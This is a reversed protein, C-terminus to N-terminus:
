QTTRRYSRGATQEGIQRRRKRFRFRPPQVKALQVGKYLSTRWNRKTRGGIPTYRTMAIKGFHELQKWSAPQARAIFIPTMDWDHQEYDEGVISYMIRMCVDSEPNRATCFSEAVFDMVDQKFGLALMGRQRLTTIIDMSKLFFTAIDKMNDVYVAPALAVFAILKDNYEPKQSMMTFFTTTGMSYGIYLIKSLGTVKLVKDIMAPADYKGHEHFSYDWFAPDNRTLNQHSTYINGRLNGLWVDYGADALIYSLSNKPGMIVFDGSSGVLGHVMLVARKGKGGSGVTRRATRRGSPIRHMQIHYGDETTVRHKEVPYGNATILKPVPADMNDKRSYQAETILTLASLMIIVKFLVVGCM